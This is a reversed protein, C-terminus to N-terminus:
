RGVKPLQECYFEIQELLMDLSEKEIHFDQPCKILRNFSIWNQQFDKKNEKKLATMREQPTRKIPAGMIQGKIITLKCSSLGPFTDLYAIFSFM